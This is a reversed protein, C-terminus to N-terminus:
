LDLRIRRQQTAGQLGSHQPAHLLGHRSIRLQRVRGSTAVLEQSTTIKAHRSLLRKTRASLFWIRGPFIIFAAAAPSLVTDLSRVRSLRLLVAIRHASM